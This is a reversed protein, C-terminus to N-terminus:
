AAEGSTVVKREYNMFSSFLSRATTGKTLFAPYLLAGETGAVNETM